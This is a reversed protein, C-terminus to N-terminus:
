RFRDLVKRYIDWLSDENVDERVLGLEEHFIRTIHIEFAPPVLQFIVNDPPCLENEVDDFLAPPVNVKFDVTDYQDPHELILAPPGHPLIKQKNARRATMNQLNQWADLETQLWPIALWRFI